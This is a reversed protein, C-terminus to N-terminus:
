EICLHRCQQVDSWTGYKMLNHMQLETYKKDFFSPLKNAKLYHYGTFPIHLPTLADHVSVLNDKKDDFMIVKDPYWQMAKFFATLLEGKSCAFSTFLMGNKFIPIRGQFNFQTFSITPNSKFSRGFHIGLQALRDIRIEEVHPVNGAKGTMFRTLAIVKIGKTQLATIISPLSPDILSESLNRVYISWLYDREEPSLSQSIKSKKYFLSSITNAEKREQRHGREYPDTEILIVRDIDFIVLSQDTLKEQTLVSFSDTSIYVKQKTFRYYGYGCLLIIAIFLSLM